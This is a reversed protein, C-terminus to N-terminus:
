TAARADLEDPKGARVQRDRLARVAAKLDGLYTRSPDRPHPVALPKLMHEEILKAPDQEEQARRFEPDLAKGDQKYMGLFERLREQEELM